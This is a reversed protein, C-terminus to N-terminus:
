KKFQRQISFIFDKLEPSGLIFSTLLYIIGGSIFAIIAQFFVGWFKQLNFFNASLQLSLYTFIILFISAILIRRLSCFVEEIKNKFFKKGEKPSFSNKIKKSLFFFLLLFKFIASFSVATSLGIVQINKIGELKLFNILFKQFINDSFHPRLLWIFLVALFINFIISVIGIKVPTKTDQFSFFARILLPIFSLAFISFSFIGLSASTLRTEWWGFQGTGLIVRVLQARLLFILFSLPIILFLIQRFILFFKELFDRKQGTMWVKAMLPFGATAFSIGILTIPFRQLNNSFNFVAISGAILTSALATMVILEVHSVMAGFIRPFMLKILRRIGKERFNFVPQYRFGTLIVSPVQIAMHLFAGIVVGYSLGLLGFKPFFFLIGFIIGLNYLIPAFSYILFRNFYHLIGSFLSSLVFFVPSLLMIRTLIITLRKSEQNFGPTIFKIIFPTFIFLILLLFILLILFYNLVNNAFYWGKEANENFYESFLPLFVAILGGAMLVGYIFDPIRFAAFYIDLSEGAGFYHALLRDRLLAFAGDIFTFIGLIIAGFTVTKSQYSFLRKIM